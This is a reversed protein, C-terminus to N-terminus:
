REKAVAEFQGDTEQYRRLLTAADRQDDVGPGTEPLFAPKDHPKEDACGAMTAGDTGAAVRRGTVSSRADYREERSFIADWTEPGCEGAHYSVRAPVAQGVPEAM